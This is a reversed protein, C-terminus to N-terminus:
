NEKEKGLLSAAVAVQSIVLSTIIGIKIFESKEEEYRQVKPTSISTTKGNKFDIAEQHMMNVIVTVIMLTPILITIWALLGTGALKFIRNM